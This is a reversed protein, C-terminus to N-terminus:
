HFGYITISCMVGRVRRCAHGAITWKPNVLQNVERVHAACAQTYTQAVAIATAIIVAPSIL